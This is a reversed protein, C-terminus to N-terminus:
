KSLQLSVKPYKGSIALSMFGYFGVFIYGIYAFLLFIIVPIYAIWGFIARLIAILRSNSEPATLSFYM